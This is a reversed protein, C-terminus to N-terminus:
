SRRKERRSLPLIPHLLIALASASEACSRTVPAIRPGSNTGIEVEAVGRLLELVEISSGVEVGVGVGAGVQDDADANVTSSKPVLASPTLETHWSRNVTPMRSAYGM